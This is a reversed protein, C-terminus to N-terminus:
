FKYVMKLCIDDGKRRKETDLEPLWKFEFRRKQQGIPQIYGLLPGIGAHLQPGSQPAAGGRACAVPETM